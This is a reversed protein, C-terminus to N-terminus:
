LVPGRAGALAEDIQRIEERCAEAKQQAEREDAVLKERKRMLKEAERKRNKEQLEVQFRDWELQAHRQLEPFTSFQPARGDSTQHDLLGRKWAVLTEEDINRFRNEHFEPNNRWQEAAFSPTWPLPKGKEIDTVLRRWDILNTAFAPGCLCDDILLERVYDEDRLWTWRQNCNDMTHSAVKHHPCWVKFSKERESLAAHKPDNSAMANLKACGKAGHTDSKCIACPLDQTLPRNAHNPGKPPGVREAEEARGRAEQDHPNQINGPNGFRNGTDRDPLFRDGPYARDLSAQAETTPNIPLSMNQQARNQERHSAEFQRGQGRSSEDRDYRHKKHANQERRDNRYPESPSDWRRKHPNGYQGGGKDHHYGRGRNGDHRGGGRGQYSSM